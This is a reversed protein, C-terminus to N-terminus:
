PKDISYKSIKDGDKVFLHNGDNTLQPNSVDKMKGKINGTALDFGIFQDTGIWVFFNKGRSFTYSSSGPLKWFVEDTKTAYNLKGTATEISAVGNDCFLFLTKTDDSLIMEAVDGVKSASLPTKYSIEGTKADLSFVNKDSAVIVKNGMGYISSIRDSFKDGLKDALDSTNWILAGSNLDYGRVGYNGDFRNENKKTTTGQGSIVIQTNIMGGFQAILVGNLVLLNPVRDTSKIKETKWVVKGTQAEVKKIVNDNELDVYYIFNGSVLPWGAIGFEQKLKLGISEDSNDFPAQWLQNGTKLDFVNISKSLVFIKDGQVDLHSYPIETFSQWASTSEFTKSWKVDGSASLNFIIKRTLGMKMRGILRVTTKGVTRIMMVKNYSHFDGDVSKSVFNSADTKEGTLINIYEADGEGIFVQVFDSGGIEEISIDKVDATSYEKSEWKKNGSRTDLGIIKKSANDFVIFTGQHSLSALCEAFHFNSNADVGPYDTTRWLEKGTVYDIIVKDGNQKKEDRNFFLIIGAEYNYVARALEKVKLDNKFNIKWLQKGTVGDLMEAQTEDRASVFKGDFSYHWKDPKFSFKSKWEVPFEQANLICSIFVFVALLNIKKM